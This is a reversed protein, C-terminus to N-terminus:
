SRASRRRSPMAGSGCGEVTLLLTRRQDDLRVLEAVSLAIGKQDAVRQLEEQNKTSERIWKMDLM